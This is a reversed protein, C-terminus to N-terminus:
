VTVIVTSFRIHPLYIYLKYSAFRTGGYIKSNESIRNFHVVFNYFRSSVLNAEAVSRRFFNFVAKESSFRM